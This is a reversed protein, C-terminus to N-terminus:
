MEEGMRWRTSRRCAELADFLRGSTTMMMLDALATQHTVLVIRKLRCATPAHIGSADGTGGTVFLEVTHEM